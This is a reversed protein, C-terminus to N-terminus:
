VLPVILRDLCFLMGVIPPPVVHQWVFEMSAWCSKRKQPLMYPNGHVITWDFCVEKERSYKIMDSPLHNKTMPTPEKTRRVLNTTAPSVVGAALPFM